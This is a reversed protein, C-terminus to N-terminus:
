FCAALAAFAQTLFVGAGESAWLGAALAAALVVAALGGAVLAVPTVIRVGGRRAEEGSGDSAATM